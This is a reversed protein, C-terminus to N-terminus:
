EHLEINWDDDNLGMGTILGDCLSMVSESSLSYYFWWDESVKKSRDGRKERSFYTRMNAFITDFNDSEMEMTFEIVKFAVERWSKVEHVEDMLTITRPKQGRVAMSISAEGLSEWIKLIVEALNEAREKIEDARWESAASFYLNNLLLAHKALYGKKLAFSNNSLTSNWGQTVLTLNGITHLYERYIDEWNEGLYEKWEDSPTQPMIHEITPDGDLVTHGGSGDSLYRNITELILTLRRPRRKDYLNQTLVQQKIRSDTPYSKRILAKKLSEIFDEDQVERWLSPFMKNTYASASGAVYRRVMYNELVRLGELFAEKAIRGQSYKDYVGLLFPYATVIEMAKLRKLAERIDEDTEEQPRLLKNYHMAFRYLTELEKVFEKQSSFDKEMRDRFRAYIHGMNPLASAQYALYHRLFSTLEGIRSVVRREQLIQEIGSWYQEFIEEQNHGPLKMAIYNRVLDPQTLPKGKANLSEFIEFPRERQDLDIFVVQLSNVVTLFLHEPNVKNHQIRNSLQNYIFNYAPLIRSESQTLPNERKLISLYTERDGYKTTPLLKFHLDGQEDANTLLKTIKRYLGNNSDSVIERLACLILSITTLRQQGDVLKFVPVTGSRTGDNIVVLSGMFHVPIDDNKYLEYISTLDSLLTKWDEKEWTYERQFHPLVYHIDGGGSFIKLINKSFVDM